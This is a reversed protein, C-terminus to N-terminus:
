GELDRPREQSRDDRRTAGAQRRCRSPDIDKAALPGGRSRVLGPKVSESSSNPVSSRAPRTSEIRNPTAFRDRGWRKLTRVTRTAAISRPIPPPRRGSTVFITMQGQLGPRLEFSAYERIRCPCPGRDRRDAPDRHQRLHDQRPVAEERRWPDLPGRSAPSSRSSRARRSAILTSSPSTLMPPWSNLNGLLVVAENARVSEGPEEDAQHRDWRLAGPDHAGRPDSHGTWRPRPSGRNEVAEQELRRRAKYEGEAQRRGRRLGNRAQTTSGSM